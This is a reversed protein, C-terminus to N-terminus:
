RGSLGAILTEAQALLAGVAQTVIEEKEGAFRVRQVSCCGCRTAVSLYILGVPNGDEDPAPGAVGTVALAVDAASRQIGAVAMTKAADASVATQEALLSPSIALMSTKATKTYVVFGGHLVTSAGPVDSLVRALSGATCSEVTVLTLSRARALEVIRRAEIV